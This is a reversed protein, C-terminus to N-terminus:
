NMLRVLWQKSENTQVPVKYVSYDIKFGLWDKTLLVFKLVNCLQSM